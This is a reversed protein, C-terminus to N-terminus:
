RRGRLHALPIKVIGFEDAIHDATAAPRWAHGFVVEYTAHFFGEATASESYDTSHNAYDFQTLVDSAHLENFLDSVKSYELTFYETDMVPDAFRAQTLADGLNHMDAFVPVLSDKVIERWIKLTDPGFGTFVLLGEPRLIRRWEQLLLEVNECWPLVLNAFVLDVSQNKLPVVMADACVLSANHDQQRVFELRPYAMDMAVIHAEPYRQQLLRNFYGTGCGADLIVKPLMSVWELRQLMQEGAENALVAAAAYEAPTFDALKKPVSISM